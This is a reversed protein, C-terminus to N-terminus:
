HDCAPIKLSEREREREREREEKKREKKRERENEKVKKGENSTKYLLGYIRQQRQLRVGKGM